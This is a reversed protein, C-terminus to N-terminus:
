GANGLLYYGVILVMAVAAVIGAVKKITSGKPFSKQKSYSLGSGSIGVSGRVGNKNVSIRAGKKGISISPGNKNITLNVGKALAKTKRYTSGM